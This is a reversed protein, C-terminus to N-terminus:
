RKALLWICRRDRIFLCALLAYRSCVERTLANKKDPRNLKIRYIKGDKEELIAGGAAATASAVGGGSGGGGSPKASVSGALGDILKM